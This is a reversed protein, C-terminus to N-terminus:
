QPPAPCASFRDEPIIQVWTTGPAFKMPAGNFTFSFPEEPAGKRWIGTFMKGRTFFIAKGEGLVDMLLEYEKDWLPKVKPQPVTVVVVNDAALPTGDQVRHFAGNILRQYRSGDWRWAAEYKYASNNAYLLTLNNCAEGGEVTGVPWNRLPVLRFGKAEAGQLLRDTSTYLNHPAKRDNTRWFYGGSNKIEDMDQVGLAHVADLADENGGAHAYPAGYARAIQVFYYRASRIPGIKDARHSYFVALFRTIGGEAEAEYVVDAKDLGSQPRAAPHNEIMATLVGPLESAPPAQEEATREAPPKPEGARAKPQDGGSRACGGLAVVSLALAGAILIARSKESLRCAGSM